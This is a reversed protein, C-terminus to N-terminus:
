KNEIIKKKGPFIKYGLSVRFYPQTYLDTIYPNPSFGKDSLNQQISASIFFRESFLYNVEVMYGWHFQNSTVNQYLVSDYQPMPHTFITNAHAATFSAPAIVSDPGTLTYRGYRNIVSQITASSGFTFVPGAAISFKDTILYKLLIPLEFELYSRSVTHSVTISDYSQQFSYVNYTGAAHAHTGITTVSDSVNTYYPTPDGGFPNKNVINYKIGPAFFVSFRKTWDIQLYPSLVIYTTNFSQTGHGLSAKIGGQTAAFSFKKGGLEATSTNQAASDNSSNVKANTANSPTVKPESQVPQPKEAIYNALAKETTIPTALSQKLIDSEKKTKIALDSPTKNTLPTKAYEKEAFTKNNNTTSQKEAKTQGTVPKDVVPRATNNSSILPIAGTLTDRYNINNNTKAVSNSNFNKGNTRSLYPTTNKIPNVNPSSPLSSHHAHTRTATVQTDNIRITNPSPTLISTEFQKKSHIPTRVKQVSTVSIDATTSDSTISTAKKSMGKNTITSVSTVPILSPVTATAKSNDEKSSTTIYGRGLYIGGGAVLFLFLMVWWWAFPKRGKGPDLRKELDDWVQSPPTEAANGIEERFFDDIHIKRNDM